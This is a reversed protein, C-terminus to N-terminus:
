CYDYRVSELRFFHFWRQLFREKRFTYHSGDLKKAGFGARTMFWLVHIPLKKLEPDGWSHLEALVKCDAKSLHNLAGQLVRYEFGEVDIKLFLGTCSPIMTDIPRVPVEIVESRSKNLESKVLSGLSDDAGINFPLTAERDGAAVPLVTILNGNTRDWRNVEDALTQALQPDAEVLYIPINKCIANTIYAYFGRNAGVDVFGGAGEILRGFHEITTDEYDDVFGFHQRATAAVMSLTDSM